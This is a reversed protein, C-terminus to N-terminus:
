KASALERCLPYSGTLSPKISQTGPPIEARTENSATSLTGTQNIATAVYYYTSADPVLTDICATGTVPIFNIQECGTCRFEGTAKKDAVNKTASRYLCYGM